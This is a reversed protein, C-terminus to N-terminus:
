KLIFVYKCVNSINRKPLKKFKSLYVKFNIRFGEKVTYTPLASSPTSLTGLYGWKREIHYRKKQSTQLTFIQFHVDM